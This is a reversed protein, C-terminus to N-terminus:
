CRHYLSILDLNILLPKTSTKSAWSSVSLDADDPISYSGKFRGAVILPIIPQKNNNSTDNNEKVKERELIKAFPEQQQQRLLIAQNDQTEDFFENEFPSSSFISPFDFSQQETLPTFFLLLMAIFSLTLSSLKPMRPKTSQM